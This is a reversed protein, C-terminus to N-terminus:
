YGKLFPSQSTELIKTKVQNYFRSDLIVTHFGYAPNDIEETNWPVMCKIECTAVINECLCKQLTSYPNRVLHGTFSKLHYRVDLQM